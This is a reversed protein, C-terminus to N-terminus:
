NKAKMMRIEFKSDLSDILKNGNEDSTLLAEKLDDIGYDNFWQEKQVDDTPTGLETLINNQISYYKDNQKILYKSQILGNVEIEFINKTFYQVSYLKNNYFGLNILPMSYNEIVYFSNINLNSVNNYDFPCVLLCNDGDLGTQVFLYKNKYVLVALIRSVTLTSLNISNLLTNDSKKYFYINKSQYDHIILLDQSENIYNLTGRLTRSISLTELTNGTNKDIKYYKYSNNFDYIYLNNDNEKYIFSNYYWNAKPISTITFSRVYQKTDINFVYITNDDVMGVYIENGLVISAWGNGSGTIMQTKNKVSITM